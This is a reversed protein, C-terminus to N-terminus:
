KKPIFELHLDMGMGEALRQLTKISPNALGREIKSIDAQYIQTKEALEKQTISAENRANTLKYGIQHGIDVKQKVAIEVGNEWIEEASLDLDDNWSIGYGGIDVKVNEYLENDKMLQVFQPFLDFISKIDYEKSVGNQFVALVVFDKLVKVDIIRHTM